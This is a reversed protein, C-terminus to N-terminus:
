DANQKDQDRDNNEVPKDLADLIQKAKETGELVWDCFTAETGINYDFRM